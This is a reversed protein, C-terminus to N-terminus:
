SFCFTQSLATRVTKEVKRRLKEIKIPDLQRNKEIAPLKKM